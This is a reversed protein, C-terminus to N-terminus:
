QMDEFQQFERSQEKSLPQTYPLRREDKRDWSPKDHGQM